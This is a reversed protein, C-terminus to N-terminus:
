KEGELREIRLQDLRRYFDGLHGSYSSWSDDLSSKSETADVPEGNDFRYEWIRVYLENLDDMEDMMAEWSVKLEADRLARISPGLAFVKPDLEEKWQIRARHRSAADDPDNSALYAEADHMIRRFDETASQAYSEAQLVRRDLIEARRDLRRDAVFWRRRFGETALTILGGLLVGGLALLGGILIADM